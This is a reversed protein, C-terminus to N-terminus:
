LRWLTRFQLSKTAKVSLHNVAFREPPRGYGGMVVTVIGIGATHGGREKVATGTM